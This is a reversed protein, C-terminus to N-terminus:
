LPNPLAPSEIMLCAIARISQIVRLNSPLPAPRDRRRCDRLSSRLRSYELSPLSARAKSHKQNRSTCDAQRSWKEVAFRQSALAEIEERASIVRHAIKEREQQLSALLESLNIVPLASSIPDTAASGRLDLILLFNVKQQSVWDNIQQADIPAAIVLSASECNWGADDMRLQELQVQPHETQLDKANQWNRYFVRAETLWPLIERALSGAGLVAVSSQGKLHRRILSGYSQSGLNQLHLHRVERADVLADTTLKRLFNGWTTDPFKASARFQRFQGMVANEGVLPSHLGCIVELLFQYAERGRYTELGHNNLREFESRHLFVIRRLCTQWQLNTLVAPMAATSNARLNVIVLDNVM